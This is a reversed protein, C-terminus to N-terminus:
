PFPMTIFPCPALMAGYVATGVILVLFLLSVIFGASGFFEGLGEDRELDTLNDGGSYQRWSRWGVLGVALTAVAAVAGVVLLIMPSGTQCVSPELLYSIFLQAFWFVPGAIVSLPLRLNHIWQGFSV